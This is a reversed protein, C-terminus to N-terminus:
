GFCFFLAENQCLKDFVEDIFEAYNKESMENLSSLIELLKIKEMDFLNSLKGGRCKNKM